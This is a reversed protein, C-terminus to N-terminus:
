IIQNVSAGINVPVLHELATWIVQGCTITTSISTFSSSFQLQKRTCFPLLLVTVSIQHWIGGFSLLNINKKGRKILYGARITIFYENAVEKKKRNKSPKESYFDGPEQSERSDTYIKILIVFWGHSESLRECRLAARHVQTQYISAKTQRTLWCYNQSGQAWKGRLSRNM